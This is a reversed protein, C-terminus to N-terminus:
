NTIITKIETISSEIKKGNITIAAYDNSVNKSSRKLKREIIVSKDGIELEM